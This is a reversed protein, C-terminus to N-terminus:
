KFCDCMALYHESNLGCNFHVCQYHARFAARASLHKGTANYTFSCGEYLCKSDGSRFTRYLADYEAAELHDLRILDVQVTPWDAPDLSFDAAEAATPQGEMMGEEEEVPEVVKSSSPKDATTEAHEVDPTAEKEVDIVLEPEEAVPSSASPHSASDGIVASNKDPSWVSFVKTPSTIVQWTEAPTACRSPVDASDEPDRDANKASGDWNILGLKYQHKWPLRPGMRQFIEELTAGADLLAHFKGASHNILAYAAECRTQLKTLEAHNSERTSGGQTLSELLQLRDHMEALQPWEDWFIYPRRAGETPSTANGNKLHNEVFHAKLKRLIAFTSYSKAFDCHFECEDMTCNFYLRGRLVQRTCFLDYYIRQRKRGNADVDEDEDELDDYPVSEPHNIEIAAFVDNFGAGDDLMQRLERPKKQAVLVFQKQRLEARELELKRMELRDLTARVVEADLENQVSSHLETYLRQQEKVKECLVQYEPWKPLTAPIPKPED